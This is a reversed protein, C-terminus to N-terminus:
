AVGGGEDNASIRAEGGTPAAGVVVVFGEVPALVVSVVVPVVIASVVAPVVVVFCEVPV